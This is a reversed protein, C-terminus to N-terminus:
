CSLLVIGGSLQIMTPAPNMRSVAEWKKVDQELPKM